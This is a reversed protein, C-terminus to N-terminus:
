EHQLHTDDERGLGLARQLAPGKFPMVGFGGVYEWVTWGEHAAEIQERAQKLWRARSDEPAKRYVGFETVMTVAHHETAWRRSTAIQDAMLTAGQTRYTSLLAELKPNELEHQRSPDAAILQINGPAPPYVLGVFPRFSPKVWDAGQHTFAMPQYLHWAYIVNTDGSTQSPLSSVMSLPSGTLLITHGPLFRRVAGLLHEQAEEWRHADSLKPENALELFLYTPSVDAYRRALREWAAEWMAEPDPKGDEWPHDKSVMCLIIGLNLRIAERVIRDVKAQYSPGALRGEDVFLRIHRFGADKIRLLDVGLDGKEDYATSVNSGRSLVALRDSTLDARADVALGLLLLFMVLPTKM